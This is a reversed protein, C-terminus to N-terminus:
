HSLQVVLFILSAKEEGLETIFYYVVLSLEGHIFFPTVTCDCWIM